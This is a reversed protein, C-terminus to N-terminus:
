KFLFLRAPQGDNNSVKGTIQGTQAYIMQTFLCLLLVFVSKM